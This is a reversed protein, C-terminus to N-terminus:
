PQRSGINRMYAIYFRCNCSLKRTRLGCEVTADSSRHNSLKLRLDNVESQRLSGVYQTPHYWHDIPDIWNIGSAKM